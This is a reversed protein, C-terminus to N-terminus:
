SAASRVDGLAHELWKSPCSHAALSAGENLAVIRRDGLGLCAEIRYWGEHDRRIRLRNHRDELTSESTKEAEVDVKMELHNECM